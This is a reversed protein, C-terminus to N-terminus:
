DTAKLAELIPTRSANWAPALSSALGMVVAAALVAVAVAPTIAVQSLQAFVAPGQRVVWAIGNALGLGIVGGIASIVAAEGLIIGLIALPKFGLTKLIGVDRRRERVSMAMTNGTVLLITFTIAGCIAALFLKVNGLFAVFALGFAQESETRTQAPSNAFMDDIAKSIKPVNDASDARMWFMGVLDRRRNNQGLAERIYEHNFYLSERDSNDKFTGVLILELNVPWIDGTLNIREGIKWGKKAALEVTAIAGRRERLFAQKHEESIEIDPRVEFFNKPDTSFRAFINSRDAQEDKYTGGFWNLITVAQVGPVARIKQEYSVPMSQTLSVRHRTMVRLEQGPVPDSWFLARYMAALTGLLAFSAAISAITLLSRRRNRVANKWILPVHRLM